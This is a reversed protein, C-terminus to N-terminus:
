GGRSNRRRIGKTWHRRGCMRAKGKEAKKARTRTRGSEKRGKAKEKREQGGAKEETREESGVETEAQCGLM